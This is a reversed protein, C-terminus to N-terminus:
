RFVTLVRVQYAKILRLTEDVSRGVDPHNMSLHKIVGEPDIIYSARLPFGKEEMLAGYSATVAKTMDSVLPYKLHGLGGKSRPQQIWALHSNVSDCSVGIVDANIDHFEKLRDSFAIIETPCM